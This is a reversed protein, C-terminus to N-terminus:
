HDLNFAAWVNLTPHPLKTRATRRRLERCDPPGPSVSAEPEEVLCTQVALSFPSPEKSAFEILTRACACVPREKNAYLAVALDAPDAIEAYDEWGPSVVVHAGNMLDIGRRAKPFVVPEPPAGSAILDLFQESATGDPALNVRARRHNQPCNGCSEPLSPRSPSAQTDSV